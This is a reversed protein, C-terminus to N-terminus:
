NCLLGSGGHMQLKCWLPPCNSSRLLYLAPLVAASVFVGDWYHPLCSIVGLLKKQGGCMIYVHGCEHFSHSSLFSPLFLPLSPLFLKGLYLQMTMRQINMTCLSEDALTILVLRGWQGEQQCHYSKLRQTQWELNGFKENGLGWSGERVSHQHSKGDTDRGKKMKLTIPCTPPPLSISLFARSM